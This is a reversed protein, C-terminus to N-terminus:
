DAYKVSCGYATTQPQSVPKGALLEGVAQSVFNTAGEITAPDAAPNSDIAGMYALTGDKNVIFMEPTRKAGYARGVKGDEDLLYATANSGAEKSKAAADEAGMHGQTGPASSCISLWVVGQDVAEKQLKQMNGAGYHKKVFPCGHNVWELVVIKGEFDSLSHSQGSTDTLTFAPAPKGIEPAALTTASTIAFLGLAAGFLTKHKMIKSKEIQNQINTTNAIASTCDASEWGISM